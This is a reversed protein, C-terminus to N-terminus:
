QEIIVKQGNRLEYVTSVIKMDPDIGAKIEIFEGDIEGLTVQKEELVSDSNVQYIYASDNTINVAQLPLLYSATQNENKGVIKVTVNQGIILNSKEPESVLIDVEATKTKADVSPSLRDVKGKIGDGIIVDAEKEILPLDKDSVYSKIQLGSENVISAIASGATILEGYKASLSSVTGSIPSRIITKDIQASINEVTAQAAEVVAEQSEIQETTAGAVALALSSEASELASTAANITTEKATLSNQYSNYSTLYAAARTNPVDVTWKETGTLDGGSFSIYLGRDGMPVAKNSIPGSASELGSTNFYYGNSTLYVNINYKGQETGTYTGSVTAVASFSREPNAQVSSNLLTQYANKVLLDQQAKTDELTQKATDVRIKALNLEETRTGKKMQELNAQQARLSAKAQSLQANLDTNQLTVLVQGAYVKDGISVKISSVPANVQSRLDAQQLSEVIGNSSVSTLNKQYDKVDLLIVKTLATESNVTSSKKLANNVIAGAGAILVILVLAGSIYKHNTIKNLIKM